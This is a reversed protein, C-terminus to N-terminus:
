PWETLRLVWKPSSSFTLFDVTLFYWFIKRDCMLKSGKWFYHGLYEMLFVYFWYLMTFGSLCIWTYFRLLECGLLRWCLCSSLRDSCHSVHTKDSLSNWLVSAMVSLMRVMLNDMFIWSKWLFYFSFTNIENLMARRFSKKMTLHSMLALEFTKPGDPSTVGTSGQHLVIGVKIWDVLGMSMKKYSTNKIYFIHVLKLKSLTKIDPDQVVSLVM